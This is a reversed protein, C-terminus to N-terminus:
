ATAHREAEMRYFVLTCFREFGIQSYVQAGAPTAQLTAVQYGMERAAHMAALTAARACGRRRAEPVTSIYYLGCLGNEGYLSATSAPTGEHYALFHRWPLGPGIGRMVVVDEFAQWAAEPMGFGRCAVRAWLRLSATDAVEVVEVGPAAPVSAAPLTLDAAMGAWDGRRILGRRLLREGLNAPRTSPGLFWQCGANLSRYISLVAEVREDAESEALHVGLVRNLGDAGCYVWKVDQGIYSRAGPLSRFSLSFDELNAEIYAVADNRSYPLMM